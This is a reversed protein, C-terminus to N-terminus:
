GRDSISQQSFGESSRTQLLLLIWIVREEMKVIRMSEVYHMKFRKATNDDNRFDQCTGFAKADHCGGYLGFVLSSEVRM